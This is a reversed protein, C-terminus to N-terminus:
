LLSLVKPISTAIDKDSIKNLKKALSKAESKFSKPMSLLTLLDALIIGTTQSSEPKDDDMEVIASEMHKLIIEIDRHSNEGRLAQRLSTLQTDLAPDVGQAALSLRGLSRQLLEDYSKQEELETASQYYKKKWEELKQIVDDNAM